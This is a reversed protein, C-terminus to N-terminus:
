PILVDGEQKPLKGTGEPEFGAEPETAAAADAKAAFARSIDTSSLL